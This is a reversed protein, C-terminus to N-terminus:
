NKLKEVLAPTVKGPETIFTRVLSVFCLLLTWLLYMSYSWQVFPTEFVRFIAKICFISMYIFLATQILVLPSGMVLKSCKKVSM